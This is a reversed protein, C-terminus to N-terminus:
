SQLFPLVSSFLPITVPLYQECVQGYSGRGIVTETMTIDSTNIWMRFQAELTHISTNQMLAQLNAQASPLATSNHDLSIAGSMDVHGAGRSGFMDSGHDLEAAIDAEEESDYDAANGQQRLQNTFPHLGGKGNGDSRRTGNKSSFPRSSVGTMSSSTDGNNRAPRPTHPSTMSSSGAGAVPPIRNSHISVEGSNGADNDAFPSLLSSAVGGGFAGALPQLMGSAKPGSSSGKVGGGAAGAVNDDESDGEDEDEGFPSLLRGAFPRAGSRGSRSNTSDSHQSGASTLTNEDDGQPGRYSGNSQPPRPQQAGAIDRRDVRPSGAESESDFAGKFVKAVGRGDGSPSGTESESDFAGKFIKAVGAAPGRRSGSAGGCRGAAGGDQATASLPSQARTPASVAAQTPTFTSSIDLNASGGSDRTEFGNANGTPNKYPGFRGADSDDDGGFGSPLATVVGIGWREPAEPIPPFKQVAGSAAEELETDSGNGTSDAFASKAAPRSSTTISGPHNVATGLTSGSFGAGDIYSSAALSSDGGGPTRGGGHAVYDSLGSMRSPDSVQTLVEFRSSGHWWAAMEDSPGASAGAGADPRLNLDSLRPPASSSPWADLSTELVPSGHPPSATNASLGSRSSPPVPPRSPSVRPQPINQFAEAAGARLEGSGEFASTLSHRHRRRSGSQAHGAAPSSQPLAPVSASHAAGSHHHLPLGGYDGSLSPSSNAVGSHNLLPPSLEHLSVPASTTASVDAQSFSHSSQEIGPPKGLGSALQQAQSPHRTHSSAAGGSATQMQVAGSDTIFSGNQGGGAGTSSETSMFMVAENHARERERERERDRVQQLHHADDIASLSLAGASNGGAGARRRSGSSTGSRQMRVAVSLIEPNGFPWAVLKPQVGQLSSATAVSAVTAASAGTAGGTAALAASQVEAISPQTVTATNISAQTSLGSGASIASGAPNAVADALGPAFPNPLRNIFTAPTPSLSRPPTMSGGRQFAELPLSGGGRPSGTGRVARLDRFSSNSQEVVAGSGGGDLDLQVGLDAQLPVGGPVGGRAGGTTATMLSTASGGRSLPAQTSASGHRTPDMSLTFDYIGVPQGPTGAAVAAAAAAVAATHGSGHTFRPSGPPTVYSTGAATSPLSAQMGPQQQQQQSQPPTGQSSMSYSPKVSVTAQASVQTLEGPRDTLNVDYEVSDERQWFLQKQPAVGDLRSNAVPRIATTIGVRLLALKALLARHCSTGVQLCAIVTRVACASM